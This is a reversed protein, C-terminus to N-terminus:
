LSTGLGEHYSILCYGNLVTWATCWERGWLRRDKQGSAPILLSQSCGSWAHAMSSSKTLGSPCFETIEKTIEFQNSGSSEIGAEPWFSRLSQTRSHCHMWEKDIHVHACDSKANVISSFLLLRFLGMVVPSSCRRWKSSTVMYVIKAIERVTM